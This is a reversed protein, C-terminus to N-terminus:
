GFARKLSDLLGGALDEDYRRLDACHRVAEEANGMRTHLLILHMRVENLDPKMELARTFAGIAEESEGSLEYGIGLQFLTEATQGRVDADERTM